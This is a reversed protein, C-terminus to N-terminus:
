MAPRAQASMALFEDVTALREAIAPRYPAAAPTLALAQRWAPRAAGFEGAGVYALGLFFVPGPQDPALKLARRFAFLAAPSVQDGDHAALVSGLGTWLAPDSPRLAIERLLGQAAGRPNGSRLRADASALALDDGALGPMIATRFDALGPDIAIAAADPKVPHGPLLPRGQLTYGIAALMGAAGALAWLPRAVGALWLLLAAGGGVLALAVWGM